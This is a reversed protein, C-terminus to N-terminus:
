GDASNQRRGMLNVIIGGLAANNSERGVEGIRQSGVVNVDIADEGPRNRRVKVVM